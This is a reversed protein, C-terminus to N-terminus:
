PELYKLTIGEPIIMSSNQYIDCLRCDRAQHVRANGGKTIVICGKKGFPAPFKAGLTVETKKQSMDNVGSVAFQSTDCNRTILAPLRGDMDSTFGAAITWAVNAQQLSGPKASGVGNGWLFNIPVDIYPRWSDGSTQKEVDFLKKFYETSTGFTQGAIDDTDDSIGDAESLHPWLIPKDTRSMSETNIANVIDAGQKSMTQMQAKVSANTINPVLVAMLIGLIGIVVLLEVLTFGKNSKKM